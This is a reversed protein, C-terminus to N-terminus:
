GRGSECDVLVGVVDEERGGVGGASAGEGDASALSGRQCAVREGNGSSIRGESECVRHGRTEDDVVEGQGGM